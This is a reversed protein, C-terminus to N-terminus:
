AVEGQDLGLERVTNVFVEARHAYNRFMDLSACAPSLLVADGPRAQAFAWRTAEELTAHSQTPLAEGQPNTTHALVHGIAQADRGILAVARAFRGVPEALPAFDQGKGDGGLIVVLKGPSLD